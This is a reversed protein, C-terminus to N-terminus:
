QYTVYVPGPYGYYGSPAPNTVYYQGNQFQQEQQMEMPLPQKTNPNNADFTGPFITMLIPIIAASLIALFINIVVIGTVQLVMANTVSPICGDVYFGTTGNGATFVCDLHM